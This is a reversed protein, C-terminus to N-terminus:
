IRSLGHRGITEQRRMQIGLTERHRQVQFCWRESATGLCQELRREPQAGQQTIAEAIAQLDVAIERSCLREAQAVVDQLCGPQAHRLGFEDRAGGTTTSQEIQLRGGFTDFGAHGM